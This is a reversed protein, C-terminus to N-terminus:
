GVRPEEAAGEPGIVHGSVLLSVAETLEAISCPKELFAEREWLVIREDFLRDSFGTLYLVPLDPHRARLRRALEVGNMHPMMVDTVLVDITDPDVAIAEDGDGAVTVECGIQSMVRHVFQRVPSEDDVVLVRLPRAPRPTADLQDGHVLTFFMSALSGVM